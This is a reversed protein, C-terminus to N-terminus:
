PILRGLKSRELPPLLFIVHFVLAILRLKIKEQNDAKSNGSPNSSNNIQENAKSSDENAATAM